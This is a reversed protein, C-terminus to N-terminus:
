VAVHQKSKLDCLNWAPALANNADRLSLKASTASVLSRASSSELVMRDNHGCAINLKKASDGNSFRRHQRIYFSLEHIGLTDSMQCRCIGIGHRMNDRHTVGQGAVAEVDCDIVLGLSLM